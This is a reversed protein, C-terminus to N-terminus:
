SMKKKTWLVQAWKIGASFIGMWECHLVSLNTALDIPFYIWPLYKRCMCLGSVWQSILCWCLNTRGQCFIVPSMLCVQIHCLLAWFHLCTLIHLVYCRTKIHIIKLLRFLLNIDLLLVRDIFLSDWKQKKEFNCSHGFIRKQNMNWMCQHSSNPWCLHVHAEFDVWINM